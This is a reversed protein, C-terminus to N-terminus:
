LIILWSCKKFVFYTTKMMLLSAQHSLFHCLLLLCTAVSGRFKRVLHTIIPMASMLAFLFYTAGRLPAVM